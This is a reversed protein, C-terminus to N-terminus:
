GPTGAVQFRGAAEADTAVFDGAAGRLDDGFGGVLDALGALTIQWFRASGALANACLEAGAVADQGEYEWGRIQSATRALREGAESVALGMARVAPADISTMDDM